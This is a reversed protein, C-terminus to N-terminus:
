HEWKSTKEVDSTGHTLGYFCGACPKRAADGGNCAYIKAYQHRCTVKSQRQDFDKPTM